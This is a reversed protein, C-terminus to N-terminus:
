SLVRSGPLLFSEPEKVASPFGQVQSSLDLAATPGEASLWRGPLVLSALGSRAPIGVGKGLGQSVTLLPVSNLKDKFVNLFLNRNISHPCFLSNCYFWLRTEPM